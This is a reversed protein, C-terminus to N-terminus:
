KKRRKPMYLKLYVISNAPIDIDIHYPMGHMEGKQGRCKWEAARYGGYKVCETDLIAKYSLRDPVGIKYGSRSVPSFNAVAIVYEGENSIRMFALVNQKNDDAVLWKFSQPVSDNNYLAPESKYLMNLDKVYDKMRCHAPYELLLWDLGQSYNWEIFQAFEGGMFLLKKGPHAYMYALYTMLEKFKEEYDGPMKNVLSYKGHVVEDHSLPLIYNESFAFVLPFTLQGHMDKRFFPNAGVYELTDNMWGMNWKFNFGLGGEYPPKTVMPFATSEEAIMMAGKHTSLVATNLEKIYDIAELNYNGGFANTHWEGDKRAYDLYLMSAVADMRIGDIHYMDFWFMASSILFSRVEPKTYDFTVTGWEKHERKTEDSYEYLYTGDFKYLGFEDKPFHASVWDLIVGIGAKHFCEVLYMFDDPTGYRSTPAFMGSIQYGWSGEFPFETVPMFEVHTYGMEKVYPVLEDALNRYSYVNGDPHRKWSGLHVEYINVPSNYPVYKQRKQMWDDDEWKHRLRYIKSANGPSTETHVAFPDAKCVIKGGAQEISYKYKDYVSVGTVFAEWVGGSIKTMEDVTRDWENWDGVVSVSKAHPAWVRFLWGKGKGRVAPSPMFLRYCEHNTGEHFLFVPYDIESQAM